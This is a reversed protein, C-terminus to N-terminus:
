TGFSYLRHSTFCMFLHRWIQRIQLNYADSRRLIKIILILFYVKYLIQAALSATSFNIM